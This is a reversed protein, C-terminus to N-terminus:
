SGPSGRNAPDMLSQLRARAGRALRVRTGDTLVDVAERGPASRIERVSKVNLIASRHVRIFQAPDLRAALSTLSERVLHQRGDAHVNAYYDAGEIWEIDAISVFYTKGTGRASARHLLM